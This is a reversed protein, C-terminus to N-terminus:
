ITGNLFHLIVWVSLMYFIYTPCEMLCGNLFFFFILLFFLQWMYIVFLHFQALFLSLCQESFVKVWDPDVAPSLEATPLVPFCRGLSVVYGALWATMWNPLYRVTLSGTAERPEIEPAMIVNQARPAIRGRWDINQNSIVAGLQHYNQSPSEVLIM